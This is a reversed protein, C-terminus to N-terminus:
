RQARTDIGVPSAGVPNFFDLGRYDKAVQHVVLQHGLLNYDQWHTSSRGEECGLM